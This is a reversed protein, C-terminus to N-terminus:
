GDVDGAFNLRFSDGEVSAGPEVTRAIWIPAAPAATTFM